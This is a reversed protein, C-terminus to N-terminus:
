ATSKELLELVEQVTYDRWRAWIPSNNQFDDYARAAEAKAAAREDETPERGLRETLQRQGSPGFIPSLAERMEANARVPREIWHGLYRHDRTFFVFVPISDFEGDARFHQMVDMHQDRELVRMEIGAVEAIRQMVPMGRFVDPCWDEGIVLVKAPGDPRAAVARFRAALEDAIDTKALNDAFKDQNRTITAIYEDYTKAGAFTKPSVATAPDITTQTM